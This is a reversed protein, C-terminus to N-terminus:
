GSWLLIKAPRLLSRLKLLGGCSPCTIPQTPKLAAKPLDINFGNIRKILSRIHDLTVKCNPNMFGYYRVKVFGTPLVHQLFRRIFEM